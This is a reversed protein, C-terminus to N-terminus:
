HNKLNTILGDELLIKVFNETFQDADKASLHSWEITKFASLGKYDQYHYAPVNAKTVLEDWFESRPLGKSELDKFFGDSPNRLLIIKGGRSTFKEADKLFYEITAEKDPPPIDGSLLTKWVTKISNAFATDSVMEEKMRVNRNIDIDQFRRFPPEQPKDTRPPLHITKLLAKLNIDDIWAEDDNSVFALSNQLPISLSYNLRQAYTLNKYFESRSSARSWPPAQEFTTSFFLPPTVGVVVTGKFSSNEVIDHFVPLPTAGANALQIPQIGTLKEWQGLQINFLARSSGVIVVDDETADEVLARTKVWLYKDDDLDPFYGQSRWYIEWATIGLISLAIAISLSKKLKM